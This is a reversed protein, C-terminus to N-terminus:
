SLCCQCEFMAIVHIQGLESPLFSILVFFKNLVFDGTVHESHMKHVQATALHLRMVHCTQVCVNVCARAHACGMVTCAGMEVGNHQMIVATEIMCQRCDFLM